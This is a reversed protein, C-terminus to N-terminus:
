HGVCPGIQIADGVTPATLAGTTRLYSKFTISTSTQGSQVIDITNTTQDYASCDWGNTAAPMTFTATSGSSSGVTDVFAVDGNAQSIADGTGFGSSITSATESMTKKGNLYFDSAQNTTGTGEFTGSPSGVELGANAILAQTEGKITVATNATAQTTGSSGPNTGTKIVIDGDIGTGTALSGILYLSGGNINTGSAAQAQVQGNGPTSGSAPSGLLLTNSLSNSGTGGISVSQVGSNYLTLVGNDNTSSHGQIAAITNTGNSVTIGRYQTSATVQVNNSGANIGGGLQVAGAFSATSGFTSDGVFSTTGNFTAGNAVALAGNVTWGSGSSPFELTNLLSLNNTVYAGGSGGSFNCSVCFVNNTTSNTFNVNYKEQNSSNQGYPAIFSAGLLNIVAGSGGKVEIASYTNPATYSNNGFVVNGNFSIVSLNSGSSQNAVLLGDQDNLNFENHGDFTVAEHGYLEVGNAHNDFSNINNLYFQGDGSSLIGNSTNGDINAGILIWDEDSNSSLGNGGNARLYVVSARVFGVFGHGNIGDAPMNDVSIRDLYVFTNTGGSPFSLGYAGTESVASQGDVSTLYLDSYYVEPATAYPGTTSTILTTLIPANVGSKLVLTTAIASAGTIRISGNVTQAGTLIEGAPLTLHRAAGQVASGEAFSIANALATTNETGTTGNYDAVVGWIRADYSNQPTLVWCHGSTNSPIQSGGDGAGANLSCASNQLSYEVPPMDGDAYYGTDQVITGASFGTLPLAKLAADTPVVAIIKGSNSTINGTTTINNYTPSAYNAALAPTALLWIAAILKKM